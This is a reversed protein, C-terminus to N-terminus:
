EVYPAQICLGFTQKKECVVAIERLPKGVRAVLDLLFVLNCQIPRPVGRNRRFQQAANNQVTLSCFNRSEMRNQWNTQPNHQPLSDITLNAAHEFGESIVHFMKDTNTNPPQPKAIQRATM